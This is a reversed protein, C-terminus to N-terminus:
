KEDVGGNRLATLHAIFEHRTLITKKPNTAGITHDLTANGTSLLATSFDSNQSFLAQYARFVLLSFDQSTRKYCKGQWYLRGTWKWLWKKAGMEKAQKGTLACVTRQKKPNKYKLAQLFGEMSGCKVGDFIFENPYFNSLVNSPYEGKSYIDLIEEM